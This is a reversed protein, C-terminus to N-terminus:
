WGSVDIARDDIGLTGSILGDPVVAVVKTRPLPARYLAAPRLPHLPPQGTTISLDWHATRGDLAAEGRFREPGASAGAVGDGFVQKVVTPPQGNGGDALTCWLAATEPGGRPRLRTHRIWLARTGAPDRASVFWSEYGASM